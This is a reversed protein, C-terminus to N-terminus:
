LLLGVQDHLFLIISLPVPNSPVKWHPPPPSPPPFKQYFTVNMREPGNPLTLWSKMCLKDRISIELTHVCMLVVAAWHHM